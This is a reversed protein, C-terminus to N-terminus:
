VAAPVPFYKDVLERTSRINRRSSAGFVISKLNPLQSVWEIAEDPKLAGSAFVSMAIARVNRDRMTEVYKDFGGCMRFGIKNINSCIIPNEIGVSELADLLMPMNMTIFGAEANYKARVHDHFIKFADYFGMGLLLDVVVNQLFIVPTSLDKFMKMEMDILITALGEVDKKAVAMGGKLATKFLGDDPLFQNLAGLMGHETVANNYKHAYPMCPYFQFGEYKAPNARVHDCIESIREHTTCMFTKVGEEYAADLVDIIASNNQFQMQQARAKEESMHNVGFFQNDGFLLNDM